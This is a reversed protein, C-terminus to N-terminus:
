NDNKSEDRVGINKLKLLERQKRAIELLILKTLDNDTKNNTKIIQESLNQLKNKLIKLEQRMQDILHRKLYCYFETLNESKQIRIKK